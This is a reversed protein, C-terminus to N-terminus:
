SRDVSKMEITTLYKKMKEDLNNQFKQMYSDDFYQQHHYSSLEKNMNTVIDVNEVLYQVLEERLPLCRFTIDVNNLSIKGTGEKCSNMKPIDNWPPPLTYISQNPQIDSKNQVITERYFILPESVEFECKAFKESLVKLCQELHIEGLCTITHQGNEGVDIEVAPDAQYLLKLGKEINKLNSHSKPEVAVTLIPKSQFTMPKLPFTYRTSSLTASKFIKDGLGYIAVINGAPAESTPIISPGLLLYLSLNKVQVLGSEENNDSLPDHDKNLIYLKSDSSLMGSFVRGLGLFVEQSQSEEPEDQMNACSAQKLESRPVTFMKSIFVITSTSDISKCEEVERYVKEVEAKTFSTTKDGNSAPQSESPNKFFELKPLITNIRSKQSYFPSKVCRVVMKLVSASLPLWQRLIAQVTIRPDNKNIERSNISVNLANKAMKAAKEPNEQNVGVDYLQWIPDLIMSAFMPKMKEDNPSCKVLKKTKSNFMYDEFIYKKLIQKQIGLKKAWISVFKQISFGWCDFASAFVVNGKVPSFTWEEVLVEDIDLVDIGQSTDQVTNNVLAESRLITAAMANVNELIRRIHNFAEVSSLRLELILKDLKNLVLCPNMKEKIAKYIVANTQPCIGELVDIIILAGDCLRTATSVDSSFDIHGPSDVLNVLYEEPSEKPGEEERLLVKDPTQSPSSSSSLNSETLRDMQFRLSIVSSQMTIGRKQEEETFDLYRLKGALRESIFGNSSILSDSLTTKGHDVHALICFNRINSTNRQLKSIVTSDIRNYTKKSTIRSSPPAPPNVEM